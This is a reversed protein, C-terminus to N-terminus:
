VSACAYLLVPLLQIPGSSLLLAALEVGASPSVSEFVAQMLLRDSSSLWLPPPPHPQPPPSILLYPFIHFSLSCLLPLSSPSLLSTLSSLSCLRFFIRFFFLPAPLLYSISLYTNSHKHFHILWSIVTPWDPVVGLRLNRGDTKGDFTCMCVCPLCWFWVWVRCSLAAELMFVWERGWRTRAAAWSDHMILRM